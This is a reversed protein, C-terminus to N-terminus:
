VVCVGRGQNKKEGLDMKGNIQMDEVHLSIAAFREERVAFEGYGSGFV